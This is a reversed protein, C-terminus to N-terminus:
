ACVSKVVLVAFCVAQGGVGLGLCGAGCRRGSDFATSQAVAAVHERLKLKADKGLSYRYVSGVGSGGGLYTLDGGGGEAGSKSV